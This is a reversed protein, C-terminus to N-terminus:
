HESRGVLLYQLDSEMQSRVVEETEQEIANRLDPIAAADNLWRIAQSAHLRVRLDQDKLAELAVSLVVNSEGERKPKIQSALELAGIRVDAESTPQMMEVLESFCSHDREFFVNRAADLRVYASVSSDRCISKLMALGEASGLWSAAAAINVQTRADREVQAAQIIYPLADFAKMEALEAAALGRVEKKPNKLAEVLAPRTIEIHYRQLAHVFTELPGCYGFRPLATLLLAVYGFCKVNRTIWVSYFRVVTGGAAIM